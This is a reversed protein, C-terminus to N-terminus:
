APQARLRELLALAAAPAREKAGSIFFMFVDRPQIPGAAAPDARAEAVHPLDAPERGTHWDRAAQAWRLLAEPSYGTPRDAECRMLRVYVFDATANAFSPHDSTDAFVVAVDHQRALSLFEPVMFSPHRVDLAHRLRCGGVRAPLLKLFAALDDPDFKRTPALQWILPGLKPGLEALGSNVFRQISEGADALLRHATAYRLAKVAFVFDDPTQQCWKAFTAPTQTRYYTSNVEIATLCGSAHALESSHPLGKPFFNARWPAYTWGGIGVRLGPATANL